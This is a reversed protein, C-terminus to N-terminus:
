TCKRGLRLNLASTPQRRRLRTELWSSELVSGLEVLLELAEIPKPYFEVGFDVHRACRTRGLDSHLKYQMYPVENSLPRAWSKM